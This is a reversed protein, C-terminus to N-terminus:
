IVLPNGTYSRGIRTAAMARISTSSSFRAPQLETILGNTRGRADKFGHPAIRAFPHKGQNECAGDGCTCGRRGNRETIGHLPFVGYGLAAFGLAGQRATFDTTM